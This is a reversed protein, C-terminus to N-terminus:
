FVFPVLRWTRSAYTEYAVGFREHLLREESAIRHGYAPLILAAIVAALVGNGHAFGSGVWVQLSGLYGPHRLWRYPGENVVRQDPLALLTRTYYRGLVAMAWVRLGLGCVM